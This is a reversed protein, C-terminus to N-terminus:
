AMREWQRHWQPFDFDDREYVLAAVMEDVTRKLDHLVSMASVPGVITGGTAVGDPEALARHWVFKDAVIRGFYEAAPKGDFHNAPFWSALHVLVQVLIDIVGYTGEMMESTVGSDWRPQALSYGQALVDPLRNVYALLPEDSPEMLSLPEEPRIPAKEVIGAMHLAAIEDAQERRRAIRRLWDDRYRLVLGPNLRRDFGGRLLTEGHCLLCLVSLNGEDNNVPNGDIHHLQVARGRDRCVCCTYDSAFLVTAALDPPLRPRDM